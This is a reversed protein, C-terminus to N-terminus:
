LHRFINIFASQINGDACETESCEFAGALVCRIISSVTTRTLTKAMHSALCLIEPYCYVFSLVAASLLQFFISTCLSVSQLVDGACHSVLHSLRSAERYWKVLGGFVDPSDSGCPGASFLLVCSWSSVSTANLTVPRTNSNGTYSTVDFAM